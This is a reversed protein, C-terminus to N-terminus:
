NLLRSSKMKERQERNRTRKEKTKRQARQAKAGQHSIRRSYKELAITTYFDGFLGFFLM